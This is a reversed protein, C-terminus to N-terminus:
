RKFFDAVNGSNITTGLYGSSSCVLGAGIPGRM